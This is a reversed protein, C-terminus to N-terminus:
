CGGSSAFSSTTKKYINRFHFRVTDTSIFFKEGIAKYNKGKVLSQLLEKERQTLIIEKNLDNVSSISQFYEVVKRAINSSM